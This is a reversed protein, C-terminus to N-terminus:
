ASATRMCAMCTIRGLGPVLEHEIAQLREFAAPGTPTAAFCWRSRLPWPMNLCTGARTALSLPRCSASTTSTVVDVLGGLACRKARLSISAIGCTTPTMSFTFALGGVDNQALSGDRHGAAVAQDFRQVADFEADIGMAEKLDIGRSEEAMEGAGERAEGRAGTRFLSYRM